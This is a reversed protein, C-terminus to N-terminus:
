SIMPLPPSSFKPETAWVAICSHIWFPPYLLLLWLGFEDPSDGDRQHCGTRGAEQNPLSVSQKQSACGLHGVKKAILRIGLNYAPGFQQIRNAFDALRRAGM